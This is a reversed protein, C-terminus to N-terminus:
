RHRRPGVVFLCGGPLPRVDISRGPRYDWDEEAVPERNIARRVPEPLPEEVAAPPETLRRRVSTTVASRRTMRAGCASCTQGGTNVTECIACTWM